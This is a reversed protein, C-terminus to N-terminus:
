KRGKKLILNKMRAQREEARLMNGAIIEEVEEDTKGDYQLSVLIKDYLQVLDTYTGKKIIELIQLHSEKQPQTPNANAFCVQIIDLMTDTTAIPSGTSDYSKQILSMLSCKKLQELDRITKFSCDFELNQGNLNYFM